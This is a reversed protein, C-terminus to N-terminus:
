FWTTSNQLKYVIGTTLIDGMKIRLTMINRQSRNGFSGSKSFPIYKPRRNNKFASM